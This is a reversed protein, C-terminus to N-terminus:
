AWELETKGIRVTDGSQVGAEVLAQLVGLRDLERRLQLRAQFQRLDPLAVLREARPSSVVFVEREKSVSPQPEPVRVRKRPLLADSLQTTKPLSALAEALSTLLGDVGEGTLASIFHLSLGHVSLQLRFETARERVEPLDVKNVAIICPRKALGEDYLRLEGALTEIDVLPEQSTGDILYLLLRARMICTLFSNGLGKGESAGQCLSPVEVMSITSWGAQAAGFVPERTSFPYEMVGPTAKSIGQLLRSKGASPLSVIGVDVLPWYELYLEKREGDEGEEALMPVKNTSSVFKTNGRGGSGGFAILLPEKDKVVEGLFRREGTKGVEWAIVGLPVEVLVDTGAKGYRKGGSGDIGRNGEIASLFRLKSLDWVSSSGILYVDGGKGGDGGDPGGANVFKERRFGIAGNGGKGGTVVLSAKGVIM